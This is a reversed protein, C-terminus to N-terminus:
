VNAGDSEKTLKKTCAKSSMDWEYLDNANCDEESICRPVMNLQNAGLQKAFYEGMQCELKAPLNNIATEIEKKQQLNYNKFKESIYELEPETLPRQVDDDRIDLSNLTQKLTMLATTDNSVRDTVKKVYGRINDGYDLADQTPDSPVPCKIPDTEGTDAADAAEDSTGFLQLEFPEGTKKWEDPNVEVIASGDSLGMRNRLSLFLIIFVLVLLITINQRTFLKKCWGM